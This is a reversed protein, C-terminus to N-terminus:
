PCWSDGWAARGLQERTTDSAWAYDDTRRDGVLLNVQDHARFTGSRPWAETPYALGDAGVVRIDQGSRLIRRTLSQQGSELRHADAREEVRDPMLDLFLRRSMLFATTRLHPNPFRPFDRKTARLARAKRALTTAPTRRALDYQSEWSGTAGVLSVKGDGLHKRMARLWGDQLIVSTANLFCVLEQDIEQAIKRYAALDVLPEPLFWPQHPISGLTRIHADADAASRCGNFAAILTHELGAGSRRYSEAFRRLPVAGLSASALHVVAIDDM